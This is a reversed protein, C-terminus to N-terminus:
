NLLVNKMYVIKGDPLFSGGEGAKIPNFTPEIFIAEGYLQHVLSHTFNSILSNSITLAPITHM